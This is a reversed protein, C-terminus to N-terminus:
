NWCLKFDVRLFGFIYESLKVKIKIVCIDKERCLSINRPEITSSYTYLISVYNEQWAM